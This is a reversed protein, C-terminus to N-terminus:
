VLKGKIVAILWACQIGFYRFILGQSFVIGSIQGDFLQALLFCLSVQTDSHDRSGLQRLQQAEPSWNTGIFDKYSTIGLNFTVDDNSDSVSALRFKSGNWITPNDSVRKTWIEDICAELASPLPRRNHSESLNVKLSHRTICRQNSPMYMIQVDPDMVSTSTM